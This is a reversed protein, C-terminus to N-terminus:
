SPLILSPTTKGGTAMERLKDALANFIEAKLTPQSDLNGTIYIHPEGGSAILGMLVHPGGANDIHKSIPEFEKQLFVTPPIAVSM